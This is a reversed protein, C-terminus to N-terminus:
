KAKARQIMELAVEYGARMGKLFTRFWDSPANEIDWNKQVILNLLSKEIRELEENEM